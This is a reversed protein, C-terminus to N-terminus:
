SEGGRTRSGGCGRVLSPRARSDSKCAPPVKGGPFRLSPLAPAGGPDRGDISELSAAASSTEGPCPRPQFPKGRHIKSPCSIGQSQEQGVRGQLARDQLPQPDQLAIGQGASASKGFPHSYPLLKSKRGGWGDWWQGLHGRRVLAREAGVEARAAAATRHPPSPSTTRPRAPSPSRNSKPSMLRM